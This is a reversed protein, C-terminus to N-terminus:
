DYFLWKIGYSIEAPTMPYHAATFNRQYLWASAHNYKIFFRVNKVQFAINFNVIPFESTNSVTNDANNTLAFIGLPPIYTDPKYSTCYKFDIGFKMLLKGGTSFKFTHWFDTSHYLIFSPVHFYSQDFLQYTAMNQFVFKGISMRNKFQLVIIHLFKETQQLGLWDFYMYDKLLMYNISISSKLYNFYMEATIAQQKIKQLSDSKNWLYYNLFISQYFFSPTKLASSVSLKLFSSSDSVQGFTSFANFNQDGIGYGQFYTDWSVGINMKKLKYDAKASFWSQSHNQNPQNIANIFYITDYNNGHFSRYYANAISFRFNPLFKSFNPLTFQIHNNLTFIRLSDLTSNNKSYYHHYFPTDIDSSFYTKTNLEFFLHYAISATNFKSSDTTFSNLGNLHIHQLM